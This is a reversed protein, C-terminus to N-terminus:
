WEYGMDEAIRYIGVLVVVQTMFASAVEHDGMAAFHRHGVLLQRILPIVTAAETATQEIEDARAAVSSSLSFRELDAVDLSAFFDRLEISPKPHCNSQLWVTLSHKDTEGSALALMVDVVEANECDLKWDNITLFGVMAALAARKNGDAFPHNQCIHYAYAAAMAPVGEHLYAGGFQQRPMAIASELLGRDRLAPDGGQDAIAVAHLGLVDELTLFRVERASM